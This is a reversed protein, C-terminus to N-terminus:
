FDTKTDGNAFEEKIAALHAPNTLLEAATMAFGRVFTLANKIAEESCAKREFERTHAGYHSGDALPGMGCSLQISPCVYSVDGLDSSGAVPNAGIRPMTVGLKEMQQCALESLYMNSNTDKFDEEIRSVKVTTGTGLAAGEACAKIKEFLEEVYAIKNARIYFEASTYDPIINAAVGGNKIVGHIRADPKTQQRLANILNFFNIMADLANLGEEPANAAHAPKGFFEFKRAYMAMTNISSSNEEFPHSMMIVDYSDFAGRRTMEVKAGATEEAPTGIVDIQGGLEEVLPRIVLGSGVAMTAILNHGCGHGLEPLADYEALMAIRPGEKKGKYAARYATPIQVFNREVEFGYKQLLETQWQCAKVEQNGLEPNDHIDLALKKLEPELAAATKEIKERYMEM